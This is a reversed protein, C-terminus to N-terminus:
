EAACNEIRIQGEIDCTHQTAQSTAGTCTLNAWYRGAAIGQGAGSTLVCTSASYTQGQVTISVTGSNSAGATSPSGSFLLGGANTGTVQVNANADFGGTTTAVRCNFSLQGDGVAAGDAVPAAPEFTGVTLAKGDDPCETASHTGRALKASLIVRAVAQNSGSTGSTGGSTGSAGGSTGSSGATGADGSTSSTSGSCAVVVIVFCASVGSRLLASQM